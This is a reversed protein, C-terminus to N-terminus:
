NSAPTTHEARVKQMEDLASQGKGPGAARRVAGRLVMVKGSSSAVLLGSSNTNRLLSYSAWALEQVVM